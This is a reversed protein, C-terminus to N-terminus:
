ALGNDKEQRRGHLLTKAFALMEEDTENILYVRGLDRGLYKRLTKDVIEEMTIQAAPCGACNGTLVFGVDRGCIERVFIGGNHSGLYPRIVTSVVQDVRRRFARELVIRNAHIRVRM